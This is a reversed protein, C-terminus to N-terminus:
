AKNEKGMPHNIQIITNRIKYVRVKIRLLEEEETRAIVPDTVTNDLIQMVVKLRMAAMDWASTVNRALMTEVYTSLALALPGTM